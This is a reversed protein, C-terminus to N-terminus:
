QIKEKPKYKDALTRIKQLLDKGLHTEEPIAPTEDYPTFYSDAYAELRGIKIKFKRFFWRLKTWEVQFPQKFGKKRIFTYSREIQAGINRKAYNIKDDGPGLIIKEANRKKAEIWSQLHIHFYLNHLPGLFPDFGLFM